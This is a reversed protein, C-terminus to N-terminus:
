KFVKSHRLIAQFAFEQLMCPGERQKIVQSEKKSIAQSEELSCTRPEVRKRYHIGNQANGEDEKDEEM